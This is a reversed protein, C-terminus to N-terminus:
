SQEGSLAKAAAETVSESEVAHVYGSTITLDTHGAFDRVYVLPIAPNNALRSLCTHRLSHFNVPGDETVPLAAREVAKAYARQVDRRDRCGDVGNRFVFGTGDSDMRLRLVIERAVPMLDIPKTDRPDRNGTLKAHKTQGLVNGDALTHRVRIKNREFDVDEWQLGLVEGLRLAQNLAVMIIDKLWPFPATYALLRTEEDHSLIRRRSEGRKPRRNRPMAKIPNQALKDIEVAYTLMASFHALVLRKTSEDLPGENGNQRTLTPWWAAIDSHHLDRLKTKSWRPLVHVRLNQAERRKLPHTEAYLMYLDAVTMNPDSVREGRSAATTV